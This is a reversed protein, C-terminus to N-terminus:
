HKGKSYKAICGTFKEYIRRIFNIPLKKSLDVTEDFVDSIMDNNAVDLNTKIEQVLKDKADITLDKVVDDVKNQLWQTRTKGNEKANQLDKYNKDVMEITIDDIKYSGLFPKIHINYRGRINDSDSKGDIKLMYEDFAEDLTPYTVRQMYPADNKLRNVSTRKSRIKSAFAATVGEKSTGVKQALSEISLELPNSVCISTLLKRLVIIKEGSINYLSGLDAYLITNITDLVGWDM